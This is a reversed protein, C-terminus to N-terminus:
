DLVPIPAAPASEAELKRRVTEDPKLELSREWAERAAELAGLAAQIDGLHDYLTPDPEEVLEIAKRMWELAESARGLKFLVWALSDLYAANEPELDVAREIFRHAEELNEGREAWMYGLYNLAEAFDPKQTLCKRFHLEAQTFDGRRESAAGFQFYFGHNLREPTLVEGLVEAATFHRVADDYRELRALTVATLYELQFSKKFLTRAQELVRLGEGARDQALHVVALDYYAPEFDTRLLLTRRFLREAEAYDGREYAITGLFYAARENSPREQTIAELQRAAEATRGGQLYMEALSERVAPLEPHEEVLKLFVEEASETRGGLRYGEGIRQLLYPDAPALAMARDLCALMGKRCVEAHDPNARSHGSYLEGLAVLFEASPSPQLAAENLLELAAAPQQNQAYLLALNRYGMILGPDRQIAERCAEIAASVNDQATYAFGLWAFLEAEAGPVATARKLLEVAAPAKRAQLLRGVVQVVLGQDEPQAMAAALFHKLAEEPQGNVEASVGLAYQSYADVRRSLGAESLVPDPESAAPTTPANRSRAACGGALLAATLVGIIRLWYM